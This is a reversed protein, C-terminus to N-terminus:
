PQKAALLIDASVTVRVTAEGAAAVPAPVSAVGTAQAFGGRPMPGGGTQANGVTLDRYGVVSLHLQQAIDAARRELGSLAEATLDNEAGRVSKPSAEYGLNAMVLGQSQLGGALKLLPDPATGSLSLYQSGTWQPPTKEPERDVTYSGTEIEIDQVQRAQALARAMAQNIAAEVTQPDAGTKEARMDVHLLDRTLRREATQSLHLLTPEPPDAFAPYASLAVLASALLWRPM